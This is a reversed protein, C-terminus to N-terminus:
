RAPNSKLNVGVSESGTRPCCSEKRVDGSGSMSRSVSSHWGGKEQFIEQKPLSEPRSPSILALYPSPHSLRKSARDWSEQVIKLHFDLLEESELDPNMIPSEQFRNEPKM